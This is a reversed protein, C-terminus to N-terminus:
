IVNSPQQKHMSGNNTSAGNEIHFQLHRDTEAFGPPSDAEVRALAQTIPNMKAHHQHKPPEHRNPQMHPFLRSSLEDYGADLECGGRLTCAMCYAGNTYKELNRRNFIYPKHSFTSAVWQWSLNNSAPDGDLLHTLFWRAGAQWRVRRRHVIYSALWMRAHNHLYGTERLEQSFSDICALGTTGKAIDDPLTDAYSKAKSGTKYAELDSWVSRGIIRYVRQFYDRWGLENILKSAKSPNRAKSLAMDRVEALSVVGHRLNPSLRTVAGDLYNCTSAYRSPNLQALIKEAAKRGGQPVSIHNDTRAADPFQQRLYSVLESRENFERQM